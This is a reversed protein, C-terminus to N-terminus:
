GLRVEKIFAEMRSRTQADLPPVEKQYKYPELMRMLEALKAETKPTVAYQALLSFEYVAQKTDSWDLAAFRKLAEARYRDTKKRRRRIFWFALFAIIAIAVVILASLVWLSADPVEVIPKIDRLEEM